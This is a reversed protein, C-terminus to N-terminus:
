LIKVHLYIDQRWVWFDFKHRFTASFKHHSMANTRTAVICREGGQGPGKPPNQL